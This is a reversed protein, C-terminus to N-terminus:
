KEPTLFYKEFTGYKAGFLDELASLTESGKMEKGIDFPKERKEGYAMKRIHENFFDAIKGDIDEDSSTYTVKEPILKFVEGTFSNGGFLGGTRTFAIAPCTKLIPTFVGYEAKKFFGGSRVLTVYGLGEIFYSSIKINGSNGPDRYKLIYDECFRDYFMDAASEKRAM